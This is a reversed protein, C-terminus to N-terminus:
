AAACEQIQRRDRLESQQPVPPVSRTRYQRHAGEAILTAHSWFGPLGSSSLFSSASYNFGSRAM